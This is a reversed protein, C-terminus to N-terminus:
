YNAAEGAILDFFALQCSPDLLKPLFNTIFILIEM